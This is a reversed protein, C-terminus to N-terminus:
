IFPKTPKFFSLAILYAALFIRTYPVKLLVLLDISRKLM